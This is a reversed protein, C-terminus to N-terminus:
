GAHDVAGGSYIVKGTTDVFRVLGRNQLEPLYVEYKREIGGSSLRLIQVELEVGKELGSLVKDLDEWIYDAVHLPLDPSTFTIKKIEKSTISGITGSGTDSSGLMAAPMKLERLKLCNELNIKKRGFVVASRSGREANGHCFKRVIMARVM